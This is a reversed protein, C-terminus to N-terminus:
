YFSTVPCPEVLRWQGAMRRLRCARGWSHLGNWYIIKVQRQDGLGWPRGFRVLPTLAEIEQLALVEVELGLSPWDCRPVYGARDIPMPRDISFEYQAKAVEAILVCNLPQAGIGVPVPEAPATACSSLALTVGLAAIVSSKM